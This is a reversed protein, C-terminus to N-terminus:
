QESSSPGISVYQQNPWRKAQGFRIGSVDHLGEFVGKGLQFSVYVAFMMYIIM